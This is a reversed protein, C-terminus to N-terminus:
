DHDAGRCTRLLIPSFPQDQRLEAAGGRAMELGALLTSALAARRALPDAAPVPLFRELAVWGVQRGLMASLREMADQVSWLVTRGPRYTRRRALRRVAGLYGRLLGPLDAALRSRDLLVLREPAGRTFVDRGLQPRGALWAAAARIAELEQLRSALTEAAVEAEGEDESPPLLLRSKLWTLWAAMVLWDAALELRVEGAGEVVALFQEVLSLISIPRLDLKQRRALDLLLDM